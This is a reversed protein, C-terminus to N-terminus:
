ARLPKQMVLIALLVIAVPAVQLLGRSLGTQMIAETALSPIFLFLAFQLLVDALLFGALVGTPTKWLARGAFIFGLILGLPLFLWNPEHTFHFWIAQLVTPNFSLSVNSVSKANGFTLGNMWKFALWPLVFTLVLAFGIVVTRRHDASTLLKKKKMYLTLAALFLLPAHILLAENKTLVLLGLALCFLKTWTMVDEAVSAKQLGLLASVTLLLHAAVFMDAYPNSGHIIVLPLSVFAWIGLASLLPDVYRRLTFYFVAILGTFWVLHVGNILPESWEGRLVALWTKMMPLGPPYSSVGETASTVGNGIPIELTLEQTVFFIKGRMNWNNFSDDWYTPVNVLDYAGAAIKLATWLGLIIVGITMWRPYKRDPAFPGTNSRLALGGRMWAVTGLTCITVLQPLLFGTLNLKTLGTVHCIFVMFMGLTPGLVFGYALREGSSLVRNKGETVAIALWGIIAGIGVGILFALINM